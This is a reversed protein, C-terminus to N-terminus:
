TRLPSNQCKILETKTDLLVKLLVAVDIHDQSVPPLRRTNTVRFKERSNQQSTSLLRVMDSINKERADNRREVLDGDCEPLNFPIRKADKIEVQNYFSSCLRVLNDHNTVYVDDNLFFLLTEEVFENAMILM